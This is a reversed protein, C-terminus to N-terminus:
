YSLGSFHTYHEKKEEPQNSKKFKSAFYSYGSEIINPTMKTPIVKKFAEGQRFVDHLVDEPALPKKEIKEIEAKTEVKLRRLHRNLGLFLTMGIVSLVIATASLPPCLASAVLFAVSVLGIALLRDRSEVLSKEKVQNIALKKQNEAIRTSLFIVRPDQKAAEYGGQTYKLNILNQLKGKDSKIERELEIIQDRASNLLAHEKAAGALIIGIFILPMAFAPATLAGMAMRLGEIALGAKFFGEFITFGRAETKEDFLAKLPDNIGSFVMSFLVIPLLVTAYGLATNSYDVAMSLWSPSSFGGFELAKETILVSTSITSSLFLGFILMENSSNVFNEWTDFADRLYLLLWHVEEEEKKAKYFADKYEKKLRYHEKNSRDYHAKLFPMYDNNSPIYHMGKAEKTFFTDSIEIELAKKKIQTPSQSSHFLEMLEMIHEQRSQM